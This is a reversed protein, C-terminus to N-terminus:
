LRCRWYISDCWTEGIRWTRAARGTEVFGHRRLLRISAANGPDTDATIERSGCRRRHSLFAALAESAYGQGWAWPALIFGIEPLRWCGLKGIVAGDVELIFDDAIDAPAAIMGALWQETQEMREHPLTSWFRMALPDSLIAHMAPADGTRARRLLM